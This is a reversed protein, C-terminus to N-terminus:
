KRQSFEEHYEDDANVAWLDHKAGTLNEVARFATLMSHDQNNYRHLGNRGMTQLNTITALYGRLLTLRESFERDYIPYAKRQRIVVCQDPEVEMRKALGLRELESAALDILAADPMSWLEDGENCFYEMGLSSCADPDAVMARSWNGFNQIRGVRVYPAHVYIWNDPFLGPKRVVLGVVLFDRYRLGAAAELVDDPPAPRIMKVLTPLDASSLAQKPEFVHNGARVERVRGERVLLERCPSNLYVAGGASKISDGVAEWMQGPGLRPYRFSKILTKVEGNRRSGLLADAVAQKLSLDRIRQAAWEARIEHCPIGWVKETYSKFFLEYLRRGFRNRVWNEFCEEPMQPRARAWLYSGLIRGAEIPGLKGLADFPELPYSFFRGDYRIRSLRDVEIFEGNLIDSWFRQVEASKTFFRHGGIDFRNGHHVETRSIGGLHSSAEAVVVRHGARLASHAATLGAPGAGIVFVDTAQDSSM